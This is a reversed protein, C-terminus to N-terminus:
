KTEEAPTQICSSKKLSIDRGVDVEFIFKTLAVTIRHPILMFDCFYLQLNVQFYHQELM